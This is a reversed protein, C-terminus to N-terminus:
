WDLHDGSLPPCGAPCARLRPRDLSRRGEGPAQRPGSRRGACWTWWPAQGVTGVPTWYGTVLGEILGESIMDLVEIHNQSVAYAIANGSIDTQYLVGEPDDVPFRAEKRVDDKGHGQILVKREEEM